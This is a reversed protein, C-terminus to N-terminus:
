SGDGRPARTLAPHTYSYALGILALQVMLGPSLAPPSKAQLVKWVLATGALAPDMELQFERNADYHYFIGALGGAIFLLMVLQFARVSGRTARVANWGAVALGIGLLVLPIMQTADEDHALLLLEVITGLCGLLFIALLLHRLRFLLAAPDSAIDRIVTL